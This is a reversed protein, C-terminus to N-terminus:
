GRHACTGWHGRYDVYSDAVGRLEGPWDSQGIPANSGQAQQHCHPCLHTSHEFQWQMKHRRTVLCWSGQLDDFGQQLLVLRPAPMFICLLHNAGGGLCDGRGFVGEGVLAHRLNSHGGAAVNWLHCLWDLPFCIPVLCFVCSGCRPLLLRGEVCVVQQWPHVHHGVLYCGWTGCGRLCLPGCGWRVCLIPPPPVCHRLFGCLAVICWPATLM